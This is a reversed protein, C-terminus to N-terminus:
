FSVIDISGDELGSAIFQGDYSFGVSRAPSSFVCNIQYIFFSCYEFSSITKYGLFQDMDWVTTTADACGVAIYRGRPSADATYTVSTLAKITPGESFDPLRLTYLHGLNTTLVFLSPSAFVFENIQYDSRSM